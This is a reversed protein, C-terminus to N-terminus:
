RLNQHGDELRRGELAAGDQGLEGGALFMLAFGAGAALQCRLLLIM